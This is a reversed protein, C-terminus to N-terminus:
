ITGKGIYVQRKFQKTAEYVARMESFSLGGAVFIILRPGTKNSSSSTAGSQWTPKGSRLSTGAKKSASTSTAASDAAKVFPFLSSDLSSNFFDEIVGKVAPSYRSLDYGEGVNKQAKNKKKKKDAGSSFKDKQLKVGMLGLNTLLIADNASLKAAELLKKRDAEEIGDRTTVYIMLLRVKNEYSISPNSLLPLLEPLINKVESGEATYGTAMNQEVGAILALQQKEFEAMCEQAITLHLSFKGKMEQLQPLANLTEKMEALSSVSSDGSKKSTKVAKNESIFKNFNGIIQSICDAIHTHRLDVWVSDSEDLVVDRQKDESGSHMTYSYRNGKEIKLLDNSMAQYTFEHIFPTLVDFSRDLVILTSKESGSTLGSSQSYSDLHEQVLTALKSSIKNISYCPGYRVAPIDNLTACVSVIQKALKDLTSMLVKTDSSYLESFCTPCDLTFVQSEFAIFNICFDVLSILM